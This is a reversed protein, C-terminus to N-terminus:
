MLYAEPLVQQLGQAKRFCAQSVALMAHLGCMYITTHLRAFLRRLMM